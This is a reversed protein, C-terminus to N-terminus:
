AKPPPSLIDLSRNIVASNTTEFTIERHSVTNTELTLDAVGNYEKLHKSFFNLTKKATGPLDNALQVYDTIAEVVQKAERNKICVIVITDNEIKQKVLEYFEGNHEFKGKVREFGRAQLPYPLSMAIRLEITEEKSYDNREIRSNLEQNAKSKLGWLVLYYGGVNFLFIFLMVFAFAKKV